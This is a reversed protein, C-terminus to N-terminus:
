PTIRSLSLTLHQSLANVAQSNRVRAAECLRGGLDSIEPYGYSRATTKINEGMKRIEAWSEQQIFEHLKEMDFQRSAVFVSKLEHHTSNEPDPVHISLPMDPHLCRQVANLLTTKPVPKQLM